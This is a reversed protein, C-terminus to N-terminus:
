CYLKPRRVMEDPLRAFMGAYPEALVLHDAFSTVGPINEVASRIAGREGEKLLTGHLEVKGEEVTVDILPCPAWKLRHLVALVADKIASDQPTAASLEADFDEGLAHTLDTRHVIGVLKDGHLVPLRTIKRDKMLRTVETVPTHEQVACVESTMVEEVTRDHANRHAEARDFGDGWALSDGMSDHETGDQGDHAAGRRTRRLIDGGTLMGVLTGSVDVVPLTILGLDAMLAVAQGLTAKPHIGAVRTTMVNCAQTMKM